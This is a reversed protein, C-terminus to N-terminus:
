LVAGCVMPHVWRGARWHRRTAWSLGLFVAWPIFLVRVSSLQLRMAAGSKQHTAVVEVDPDGPHSAVAFSVGEVPLLVVAVLTRFAASAPRRLVLGSVFILSLVVFVRVLRSSM